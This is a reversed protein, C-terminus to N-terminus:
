EVEGGGRGYRVELIVEECLGGKGGWKYFSFDLKLLPLCLVCTLWKFIPHWIAILSHYLSLNLFVTSFFSLLGLLPLLKEKLYPEWPFEKIILHWRLLFRLPLFSCPLCIGLSSREMCFACCTCLDQLLYLSHPFFTPFFWLLLLTLDYLAKYTM